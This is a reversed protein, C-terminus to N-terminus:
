GGTKQDWFWVVLPPRSLVGRYTYDYMGVCAMRGGSKGNDARWPLRSVVEHTSHDIRDWIQSLSWNKEVVNVHPSWCSDGKRCCVMGPIDPRRSKSPLNPSMSPSILIHLRQSKIDWQIPMWVSTQAVKVLLRASFSGSQLIDAVWIWDRNPVNRM